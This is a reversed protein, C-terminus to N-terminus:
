SFFATGGGALTETLVNRDLLRNGYECSTESSFLCAHCGAGCLGLGDPEPTRDACLPDSACIRADELALRIRDGLIRPGGQAVLGGLTGESDPAATYVLVGAMPAGEGDPAHCYVRERVGAASYGCDMALRCMLAHAFSHILVLRIGPSGDEPAPRGRAKWWARHAEHFKRELERVAPRAEWATLADERFRIFIGEGRCEHAPLWAPEGLALPATKQQSVIGLELEQQTTLRTFGCLASVETLRPVLATGELFDEWGEPPPAQRIELIETAETPRAGTLAEWEPRRVNVDGDEAAADTGTIAGSEEERIRRIREMIEAPDHGALPSAPQNARPKLLYKLTGEDEVDHFRDWERRLHLIIEDAGGPISLVSVTQPFWLNSMGLTVLSLKEGCSESRRLHPHLGACRWPSNEGQLGHMLQAVTRKRGCELCEVWINDAAGTVGYESFKLRPHDCAEGRHVFDIWPVDMLHGDRCALMFRVPVARPRTGRDCDQHIFRPGGRFPQWLTFLGNEEAPAMRGCATCRLWRPFVAAPVAPANEATADQPTPPLRLEEVRRCGPHSRLAGLLRPESILRCCEREWEDLGMIMVSFEPMDAVAGVGFARMLQSPRLEGAIRRGGGGHGHTM